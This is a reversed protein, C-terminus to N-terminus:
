QFQNFVSGDEGMRSSPSPDWLHFLRPFLRPGTNILNHPGKNPGQIGARHSVGM